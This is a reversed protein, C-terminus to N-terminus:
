SEPKPRGMVWFSAVAGGLGVLTSAGIVILTASEPWGRVVSNIQFINWGGNIFAHCLMSPWISGTRWAVVGLWLGLPFAFVVHHPDIHLLAFLLSCVLIALWPPWRELLRRQMYGRFFLEETVAPAIAIFLTFPVAISWTMKEYLQEFAPNPKIVQNLLVALGIGVAFPLLTGLVVPAYGWARLGPRTLGLRRRFPQSSFWAPVVAGAGVIVQAVSGILILGLPSTIWEELEQQLREVSGGRTLYWIALAMGLAVQAGIIAAVVTLYAVFVTWLRPIIRAPVVPEANVPLADVIFQDDAWTPETRM